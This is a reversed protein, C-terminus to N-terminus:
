GYRNMLIATRWPIGGAKRAHDLTVIAATTSSASAHLAPVKGVSRPRQFTSTAYATTSTHMGNGSIAAPSCCTDEESAAIRIAATSSAGAAASSGGDETGGAPAIADTTTRPSTQVAAANTIKETSIPSAPVLRAVTIVYMLGTIATASPTVSRPSCGPAPATA